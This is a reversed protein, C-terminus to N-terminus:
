EGKNSIAEFNRTVISKYWHKQMESMGVFIIVEKKPLLSKEVHAKLRRLIFPRIM